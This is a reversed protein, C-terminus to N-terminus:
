PASEAAVPVVRRVLSKVGLEFACAAPQSVIRPAVADSVVQALALTGRNSTHVEDVFHTLEHPVHEQAPVFFANSYEGAVRADLSWARRYAEWLRAHDLGRRHYQILRHEAETNSAKLLSAQGVIGFPVDGHEHLFSAMARLNEEYFGFGVPSVSSDLRPNLVLEDVAARQRQTAAKVLRMRFWDVSRPLLTSMWDLRANPHAFWGVYTAQANRKWTEVIQSRDRMRFYLSDNYLEYHLVMDPKWQAFRAHLLLNAQYTSYGPTGTNIVQVNRGTRCRLMMEVYHPWTHDDISYWDYAGSGGTVLVRYVGAAKAPQITPGRFGYENVRQVPNYVRPELKWGVQPDLAYSLQSRYAAFTDGAAVPSLALALELGALAVAVSILAIASQFLLARRFGLRPPGPPSM